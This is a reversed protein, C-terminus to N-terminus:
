KLIGLSNDLSQGQEVGLGIFNAYPMGGIRFPFREDLPKTKRIM